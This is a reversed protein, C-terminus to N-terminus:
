RMWLDLLLRGIMQWTSLNSISLLRDESIMASRVILLRIMVIVRVNIQTFIDVIRWYFLNNFRRKISSDGSIRRWDLLSSSTWSLFDMAWDTVLVLVALVFHFRYSQLCRFDCLLAVASQLDPCYSLMAKNCGFLQKVILCIPRCQISM